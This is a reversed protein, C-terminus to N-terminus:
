ILDFEVLEHTYRVSWWIQCERKAVFVGKLDHKFLRTSFFYMWYFFPDKYSLGNLIANKIKKLQTKDPQEVGSCYLNLKGEHSYFVFPADSGSRLEVKKFGSERAWFLTVAVIELPDTIESTFDDVFVVNAKIKKTIVPKTGLPWKVVHAIM